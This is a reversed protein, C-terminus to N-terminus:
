KREGLQKEASELAIGIVMAQFSAHMCFKFTDPHFACDVVQCPNKDLNIHNRVCMKITDSRVWQIQFRGILVM